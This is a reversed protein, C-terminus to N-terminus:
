TDSCTKRYLLRQVRSFGSPSASRNATATAGITPFRTVYASNVPLTTPCPPKQCLADSDHVVIDVFPTLMERIAQNNRHRLEIDHTELLFEWFNGLAVLFVPFAHDKPWAGFARKTKM